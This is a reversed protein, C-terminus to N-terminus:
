AFSSAFAKTAQYYTYGPAVIGGALSSTVVIAGKTGTKEARELMKPLLSKILFTVQLVNIICMHEVEWDYLKSPPGVTTVGANAILVGIDIDTIKSAVKM